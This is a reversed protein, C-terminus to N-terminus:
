SKSKRDKRDKEAKVKKSKEEWGREIQKALKQNTVEFKSIKNKEFARQTITKFVDAFEFFIDDSHMSMDQGFIPKLKVFKLRIILDCKRVM